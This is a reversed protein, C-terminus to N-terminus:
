FFMPLKNSKMGEPTYATKSCGSEFIYNVVFLKNCHTFPM